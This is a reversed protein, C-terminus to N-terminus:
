WELLITGWTLGGGFGSVILKQGPKLEGARNLEDLLIPISAASTNGLRDLNMPFLTESVGLRKAVSHIIRKNAQHLIFHSIESSPVQAEELVQSISQPVTRVAFRFVEQGDMKMYNWQNEQPTLFNDVGRNQCTLVEGQSGDAAQAFGLIGGTNVTSLVAAGAGDGFLVCTSRDKWDVVKSLIEAGIVLVKQYIGSAIYANATIMGVLFGSCAASIDFAAAHVAGIAAQVRCATSPMSEDPSMTAVLILQLDEPVIQADEVAKQAAGVALSVTTEETAIRRELIGTRSSIWENNTDVIDALQDNTVITKPLCSGTGIIGVRM